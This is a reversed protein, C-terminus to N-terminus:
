SLNRDAIIALAPLLNHCAHLLATMGIAHKRSKTEWTLYCLSFILFPWFIGLGHAPASLSHLGAWFLTSIMALHTFRRVALRLVSFLLTMILTEVVPALVCLTFLVATSSLHSLKSFDPGHTPAVLTVLAAIPLTVPLDVLLARALYRAPHQSNDFLSRWLATLAPPLRIM